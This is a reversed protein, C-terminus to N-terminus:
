QTPLNWCGCLPPVIILWLLFDHFFHQDHQNGSHKNGHAGKGYESVVFSGCLYGQFGAHSRHVKIMSVVLIAGVTDATVVLPFKGAAATTMVALTRRIRFFDEVVGALATVKLLLATWGLALFTM